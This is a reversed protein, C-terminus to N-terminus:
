AHRHRFRVVTRWGLWGVCLLTCLIPFWDGYRTYLTQEGEKLPVSAVLIEQATHPTILPTTTRGFRDFVGSFGGNACRFVAIRNEVARFPAMSLHLAPFATRDFWADNTLIGMAKAGKKVFQRFHDPFGSEFCISVGIEMKEVSTNKVNFLPLLNVSKGPEFPKFQIFNPLFSALPVYEGFPVLRMKAYKGLIDGESSVSFVRNYVYEEEPADDPKEYDTAGLLMSIGTEHLMRKFRGHYTPWKAKLVQGYITTEPWVIVDPGEKGAQVTLAIYRKLITPFEASNWKKFQPINGPVLAVKLNKQAATEAARLQFVGYGLCALMLTLPFVMASIRKGWQYPECILTAIGANFLVVVFSVGHVGVVSAIQIGPLNNWQSYGISGWPFGTLMWSRVWELATWICAAAVPFLSGSHWRLLQVLAAVVGFYLATYGVLLLYGLLTQYINAYPYLLVIAVLLGAFFLFGTLYGMCFASKWGTARNLAIFFPVMAFWALPFLNANPFSFFLLMASLAVFIWHQYRKLVNETSIDEM